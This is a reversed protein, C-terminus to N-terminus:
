TFERGIRKAVTNTQFEVEVAALNGQTEWKPTFLFTDCNYKRGYNDTIEIVDAMRVFRMVDCLYESALFTMKYTKESIMKEPFFLGDRTEGEEEFVYEPKGIETNLYVRNKFQGSGTLAYVIREGDMILDTKDYWEVMIFGNSSGVVTFVDSYYYSGDSLGVRLYYQGEDTLISGNTFSPCVYVDYGNVAFQYLAFGGATFASLLTNNVLSGDAKFLAVSAITYGHHVTIIQFPPVRNKPTYLPYVDGFACPRNRDQYDTSTYFPLVSLNNSNQIM